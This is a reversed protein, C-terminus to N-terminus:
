TANRATLARWAEEGQQPLRLSEKASIRRKEPGGCTTVSAQSSKGRAPRAEGCGLTVV